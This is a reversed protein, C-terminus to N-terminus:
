PHETICGEPQAASMPDGMERCCFCEEESFNELVECHACDCQVVTGFRRGFLGMVATEEVVRLDCWLALELGAGVAYGTVAAVTPKKTEPICKEDYEYATLVAQIENDFNILRANNAVILELVEQLKGAPTSFDALLADLTSLGKTIVTRFFRCKTHANNWQRLDLALHRDM